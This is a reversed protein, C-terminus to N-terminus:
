KGRGRRWKLINEGNREVHSSNQSLLSIKPKYKTQRREREGRPPEKYCQFAFGGGRGRWFVHMALDFFNFRGGKGM